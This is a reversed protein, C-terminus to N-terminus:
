FSVILFVIIRNLNILNFFFCVYSSCSIQVMSQSTNLDFISISSEGSCAVFSCDPSYQVRSFPRQLRRISVQAPHSRVDWTRLTCDLSVSALQYPSTRHWAVDVVTGDHEHFQRVAIEVFFNIIYYLIQKNYLFVASLIM